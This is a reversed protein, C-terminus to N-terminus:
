AKLITEAKPYCKKKELHLLCFPPFNMLLKSNEIVLVYGFYLKLMFSNQDKVRFFFLSQDECIIELKVSLEQPVILFTKFFSGLFNHPVPLNRLKKWFSSM